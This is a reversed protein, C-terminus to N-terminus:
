IEIGMIYLAGFVESDSGYRALTELKWNNGKSEKIAIKRWEDVTCRVGKYKGAKCEFKKIHAHKDTYVQGSAKLTIVLLGGLLILPIIM